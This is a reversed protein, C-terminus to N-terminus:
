PSPEANACLVKSCARCVPVTGHLDRGDFAWNPVQYMGVDQSGGMGCYGLIDRKIYRAAHMKKDDGIFTTILSAVKAPNTERAIDSKKCVAMDSREHELADDASLELTLREPGKWGCTCIATRCSGGRRLSELDPEIYAVHRATV